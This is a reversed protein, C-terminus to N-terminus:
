IHIENHIHKQLKQSVQINFWLNIINISVQYTISSNSNIAIRINCTELKHKQTQTITILLNIISHYKNSTQKNRRVLPIGINLYLHFFHFKKGIHMKLNEFRPSHLPVSLVSMLYADLLVRLNTTWRSKFVWFHMYFLLKLKRKKRWKYRFMPMGSTSWLWCSWDVVM